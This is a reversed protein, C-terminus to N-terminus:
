CANVRALFDDRLMYLLAVPKGEFLGPIADALVQFGLGALDGVVRDDTTLSLVVQVRVYLDRLVAVVFALSDKSQRTDQRLWCGFDAGGLVQTSWAVRNWRGSADSTYYVQATRVLRCFETLIYGLGGYATEMEGSDVLERWWELLYIDAQVSPAYV